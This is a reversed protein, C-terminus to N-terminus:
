LGNVMRTIGDRMRPVNFNLLYGLKFKGLRLYSLLQSRHLPTILEQAKVEIVVRGEVLLDIRYGQQITIGGYHIPVSVEHRVSLDALLLEQSLCQTYASELLGPGLLKHVKLSAAVVATGIDNENTQTGQSIVAVM